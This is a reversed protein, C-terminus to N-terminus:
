DHIALLPVQPRNALKSTESGFFLRKFFSESKINLIILDIDHTQIYNNVSFSMPVNKVTHYELANRKFVEKFKLEVDNNPIEEKNEHYM